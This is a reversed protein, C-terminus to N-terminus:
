RTNKEGEVMKELRGNEGYVDTMRASGNGGVEPRKANADRRIRGLCTRKRGGETKM